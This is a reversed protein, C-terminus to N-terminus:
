TKSYIKYFRSAVFAGIFSFGALIMFVYNYGKVGEYSDIFYGILPGSFIDPTYGIISIVGVATGTLILPIRGEELVSFYLTRLAYVGIALFIISIIFILNSSQSSIGLFFFSSSIGTILFGVVLLIKSDLNSLYMAILIAIIPRCYLILNAIQASNVHNYMMIDKAYLSIIDTTKYGMYACLIIIMLLYVSPLKIVKKIKDLSLRGEINDQEKAYDLKLFFWVILGIIFVIFSTSYIVYEFAVKHQESSLSNTESFFSFILIGITGIMAGVIGRGGELLGFAKIQTSKAGWIRTAKILPSWFLFVTTFGWYAYLVKLLYYSPSNAYVIGGLSTSILAISILKRPPFKDAIPGGFIYSFIAVFGYISFCFGLEVNNISFFDLVTPRFIRSLVYPLFFIAEGSLILIILSWWNKKSESM